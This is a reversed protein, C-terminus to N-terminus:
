VKLGSLQDALTKGTDSVTDTASVSNKAALELEHSQNRIQMLNGAIENAVQSQQEAATAIQTSMGFVKDAHQAIRMLDDGTQGVMERGQEALHVTSQMVQELAGTGTQLEEIMQQIEVTASQTRGALSRVEDAVVAFGRGQQGARAAEIAANLALLNTQESIGNITTVVADIRAANSTVQSVASSANHVDAVLQEITGITQQIQQHGREAESNAQQTELSTQEAHNAVERVTATMEEMASALSDMHERQSVSLQSSSDAERQLANAACSMQESVVLLEKVVRQRTAILSDIQKALPRFDDRGPAFNMRVTLDNDTARGMIHHMFGLTGTIFIQITRSIYITLALMVLLAILMTSHEQLVASFPVVESRVALYHDDGVRASARYFGDQELVQGSDAMQALESRDLPQIQVDGLSQSLQALTAPNHPVANLVTALEEARHIVEDYEHQNERQWDLQLSLGVFVLLTLTPLMYLAVLKERITLHILKMDWFSPRFDSM